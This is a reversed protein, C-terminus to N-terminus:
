AAIAKVAEFECGVYACDQHHGKYQRRKENLRPVQFSCAAPVDVLFDGTVEIHQGVIPLEDDTACILTGTKDEVTFHPFPEACTSRCVGEVSVSRNHFVVPRAIIESIRRNM